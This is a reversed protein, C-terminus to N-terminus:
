HERRQAGPILRPKSLLLARRNWAPVFSLQCISFYVITLLVPFVFVPPPPQHAARAMLSLLVSGPVGFGGGVLVALALARDIGFRIHKPPRIFLFPGWQEESDVIRTFLEDVSQDAM